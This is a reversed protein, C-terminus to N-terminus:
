IVKYNLCPGPFWCCTLCLITSSIETVLKCFAELHAPPVWLVTGDHEVVFHANGYPHRLSPDANNYLLIDPRWIEESGMHIQKLDGFESPEWKLHDDTWSLRLNIIQIM